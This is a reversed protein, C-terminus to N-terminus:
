ASSRSPTRFRWPVDVAKSIGVRPGVVPRAPPPVGDDFLGIGSGWCVDVGNHEPGIAFAQCLKAPGDALAARGQRRERMLDVGAVPEVARLLIAAGHGEPGTVVNACYHMGYTFYVYLHGPRGFMVANRPTEGRYTHSAPDDERYAEVETIRGVCEGSVLLKNLLQPAVDPADGDLLARPVRRRPM